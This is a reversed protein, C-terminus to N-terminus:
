RKWAGSLAEAGHVVTQAVSDPELSCAVPVVTASRM